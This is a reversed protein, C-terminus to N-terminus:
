TFLYRYQDCQQVPQMMMSSTESRLNLCRFKRDREIRLYYAKKTVQDHKDREEKKILKREGEWWSCTACCAQNLHVLAWNPDAQTGQFFAKFHLCGASYLMQNGQQRSLTSSCHGAAKVAVRTFFKPPTDISPRGQPSRKIFKRTGDWSACNGCCHMDPSLTQTLHQDKEDLEDIAM